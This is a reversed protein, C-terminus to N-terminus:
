WAFGIFHYCTILSYFFLVLQAGKYALPFNKRSGLPIIMSFLILIVFKFSIGILLSRSFLYRMLPNLEINYGFQTCWYCTAILDILNLVIIILLLIYLKKDQNM